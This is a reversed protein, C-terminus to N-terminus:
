EDEFDSEGVQQGRHYHNALIAPSHTSIIISIVSELDEEEDFQVRADSVLDKLFSTIDDVFTRQWSLHLSIEPEDILILSKAASIVQMAVSTFIRFKQRIGSSLQSFRLQQENQIIIGNEIDFSINEFNDNLYQNLNDLEQQKVISNFCESIEHLTIIDTGEAENEWLNNEQAYRGLDFESSVPADGIFRSLFGYKKEWEDFQFFKGYDIDFGRKLVDNIDDRSRSNYTRDHPLHMASKKASIRSEMREITDEHGNITRKFDKCFKHYYVDDNKRETSINLIKPPLVYFKTRDDGWDFEALKTKRYDFFSSILNPTKMIPSFNRHGGDRARPSGRKIERMGKKAHINLDASIHHTLFENADIVQQTSNHLIQIYNEIDPKLSGDGSYNRSISYDTLRSEIKEWDSEWLDYLDPMRLLEEEEEGFYLKQFKWGTWGELRHLSRLSIIRSWTDLLSKIVRNEFDIIPESTQTIRFYKGVKQTRFDQFQSFYIQEPEQEIKGVKLKISHDFQASIRLDIDGTDEFLEVNDGWTYDNYSNSPNDEHPKNQPIPLQEMLQHLWFNTSLEFDPVMQRLNKQQSQTNFYDTKVSKRDLNTPFDGSNLLDHLKKMQEENSEIDDLIQNLEDLDQQLKDQAPESEDFKPPPKSDTTGASEYGKLYSEASYGGRKNLSYTISKFPLKLLELPNWCYSHQIIKMVTTKGSANLGYLIRVPDRKDFDIQVPEKSGFLGEIVIKEFRSVMDM